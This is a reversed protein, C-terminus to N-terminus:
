GSRAGKFVINIFIRFFYDIDTSFPKENKRVLYRRESEIIEEFSKPMDAYYPPLLGPKHKKRLEQLDAPYLSLYHESLARVGVLGIDGKIWNYLQPVEDLWIKRLVIGAKNRRFDNRLKGSQDLSNQEYVEKQIFESYPFMTRLKYIRIPTGNLGIRKLKIIPGYSPYEEKAATLIKQAIFLVKGNLKSEQKVLFGAYALRGWLEAKSILKKGGRTLATYVGSTWPLKPLVRKLFYHIPYYAVFLSRPMRRELNLRDLDQPIYIGILYGNVSIANYCAHFYNNTHLIDNISYYNLLCNISAPKLVQIDFLTRNYFIRFKQPNINNVEFFSKVTELIDDGNIFEVSEMQRLMLVNDEIYNGTVYNNDILSEQGFLSTKEIIKPPMPSEIYKFYFYALLLEILSFGIVPILLDYDISSEEIRALYYTTSYIM